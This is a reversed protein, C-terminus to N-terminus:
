RRVDAISLGQEQIAKEIIRDLRGKLEVIVLEDHDLVVAYISAMRDSITKYFIDVQQGDRERVRVFPEWGLDTLKKEADRPIRFKSRDDTNRIEYVGVQVKKIERLYMDAEKADDVYHTIIRAPALTLPGFSFKFNTKINAPRIQHRIAREVYNFEHSTMCGSFMPLLGAIVIIFMAKRM